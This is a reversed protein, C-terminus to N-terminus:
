PSFSYCVVVADIDEADEGKDRPKVGAMAHACSLFDRVVIVQDNLLLILDDEPNGRAYLVVQEVFHGESNFVDYSAIAGEPLRWRGESTQVWIENDPSERMGVIDMHVDSIKFTSEPEGYRYRAFSREAEEKEEENRRVSEYEREIVMIKQGESSFVHIAYGQYGLAAYVVGDPSMCWRDGLWTMGTERIERQKSLGTEIRRSLLLNGLNGQLDFFGLYITDIRNNDKWARTTYHIVLRERAVKSKTLNVYTELSDSDHIQPLLTESPTGDKEFLLFRGPSEEAVALRGDPWQLVQFPSRFEGPGDGERGVSGIREGDSSYVWVTNLQVDLLYVNGDRDECVDAILGVMDEDDASIRWLERLIIDRRGHLPKAPNKVHKIGEEVVVEGKWDAMVASASLLLMMMSCISCIHVMGPRRTM